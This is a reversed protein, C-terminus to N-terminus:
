HILLDEMSKIGQHLNGHEVDGKVIIAISRRQHAATGEWLSRMRLIPLASPFSREAVRSPRAAISTSSIGRWM